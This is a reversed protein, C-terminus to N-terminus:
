IYSSFSSKSTERIWPTGTWLQMRQASPMVVRRLSLLTQPVTTESSLKMLLWIRGNTISLSSLTQKTGPLCRCSIYCQFLAKSTCESLTPHSNSIKKPLFIMNINQDQTTQQLNYWFFNVTQRKLVSYLWKIFAYYKLPVTQYVTETWKWFAVCTTLWSM